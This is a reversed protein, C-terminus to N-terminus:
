SRCEGTLTALFSHVLFFTGCSGDVRGQLFPPLRCLCCNAIM